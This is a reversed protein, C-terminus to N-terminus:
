AHTNTTKCTSAVLASLPPKIKACILMQYSFLGPCIRIAAENIKTLCRSLPNLGIAKPFPAPIGKMSVIEYGSQMLSERMSRFTFLRTHTRDLIGVKGYNFQGLLLGARISIFGINATTIIIESGRVDVKSRIYELFAEPDNLHEIVDLM